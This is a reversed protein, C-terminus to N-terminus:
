VFTRWACCPGSLDRLAAFASSFKALRLLIVFSLASPSPLFLTLGVATPPVPTCAIVSARIGGFLCLAFDWPGSIAAHAFLGMMKMQENSQIREKGTRPNM